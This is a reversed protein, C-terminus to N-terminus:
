GGPKKCTVSGYYLTCNYLVGKYTTQYDTALAQKNINTIKIQEPKAAFYAATKAAVDADTTSANMVGSIMPACATLLATSAAALLTLTNRIKM